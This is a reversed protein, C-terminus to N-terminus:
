QIWPSVETAAPYLATHESLVTPTPQGALRALDELVAAASIPAHLPIGEAALEAAYRTALTDLDIM